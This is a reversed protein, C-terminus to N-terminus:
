KGSSLVRGASVKYGDMVGQWAPMNLHKNIDSLWAAAGQSVGATGIIAIMHDGQKEADLPLDDNSYEEGVCLVM